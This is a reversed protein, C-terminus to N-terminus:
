SQYKKIGLILCLGKVGIICTSLIKLTQGIPIGSKLVHPIAPRYSVMKPVFQKIYSYDADNCRCLDILLNLCINWLKTKVSTNFEQDYVEELLRFNHRFLPEQNRFRYRRTISDPSKYYIYRGKDSYRIQRCIRIIDPCIAADEFNEGEPFRIRDFLSRRFIKNCAYCHNYGENLIWHRFSDPANTVTPRFVIDFADASGAHVTIPYEVLDITSDSETWESNDAFTGPAVEDDSDVFSIWESDSAEIGTNRAASLGGNKRHIVRICGNESALSDCLGPSDDTSGDDVLIIEMDELDPSLVSKVCRKLTSASNYVPIIVSLRAMYQKLFTFVAV